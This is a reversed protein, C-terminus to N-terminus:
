RGGDLRLRAYTAPNSSHPVCYLGASPQAVPPWIRIVDKGTNVMLKLGWRGPTEGAAGVAALPIAMTVQWDDGARETRM